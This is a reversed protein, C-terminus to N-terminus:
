MDAVPPPPPPTWVSKVLIQVPLLVNALVTMAVFPAPLSNAPANLPSPENNVLRLAPCNVLPESGPLAKGIVSGATLPAFKVLRLAEARDLPVTGAACNGIAVVEVSPTTSASPVVMVMVAPPTM